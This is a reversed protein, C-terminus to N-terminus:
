RFIRQIKIKHNTMLPMTICCRQLSQVTHWQDMLPLLSNFGTKILKMLCLKRNLYVSPQFSLRHSQCWIGFGLASVKLVEKELLINLHAFSKFKFISPFENSPASGQLLSKNRRFALATYDGFDKWIYSIASKIVIIIYRITFLKEFRNRNNRVWRANLSM